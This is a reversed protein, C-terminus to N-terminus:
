VKAFEVRVPLNFQYHIPRLPSYLVKFECADAIEHHLLNDTYGRNTVSNLAVTVYYRGLRVAQNLDFRVELLEGPVLDPLTVFEDFTTTGFLRDLNADRVVFSVSLNTVNRNAQLKVRLVMLEDPLFTRRPLGTGDTVTVEVLEAARRQTQVQALSAQIFRESQSAYDEYGLERMEAAALTRVVACVDERSAVEARNREFYAIRQENTQFPVTHLFSTESPERDSAFSSNIAGSSLSDAVAQVFPERVFDLMDHALAVPSLVMQEQRVVMVSNGFAGHLAERVPAAAKRWVQTAKVIEEESILEQSRNKRIFGATFFANLLSWVNEQPHRIVFLFKAGPIYKLIERAYLINNVYAAIYRGSPSACHQTMFTNIFSVTEQAFLQDLEHTRRAVNLPDRGIFFEELFWLEKDQWKGAAPGLNPHQKLANWVATTGSRPCGCIYIPDSCGTM